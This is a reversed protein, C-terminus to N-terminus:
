ESFLLLPLVFLFNNGMQKQKSVSTSSPVTLPIYGSTGSASLSLGTIDGVVNDVTATLLAGSYDLEEHLTFESCMDDFKVSQM